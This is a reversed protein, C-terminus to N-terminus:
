KIGEENKEKGEDLFGRVTNFTEVWSRVEEPNKQLREAAQEVTIYGKRVLFIYERLVVWEIQERLDKFMDGKNQEM